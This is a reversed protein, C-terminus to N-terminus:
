VAEKHTTETSQPGTSQALNRVSFLENKMRETHEELADRIDLLGGPIDDHGFFEEYTALVIRCRGKRDLDTYLYTEYNYGDFSLSYRVHNTIEARHPNNEPKIGKVKEYQCCVEYFSDLVPDRFVFVEMGLNEHFYNATDRFVITMSTLCFEYIFDGDIEYEGYERLLEELRGHDHFQKLIIITKWWYYDTEIM